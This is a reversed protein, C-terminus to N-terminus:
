FKSTIEFCFYRWFSILWVRSVDGSLQTIDKVAHMGFSKPTERDCAIM